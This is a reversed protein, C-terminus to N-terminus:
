FGVKQVIKTMLQIYIQVKKQLFVQVVKAVEFQLTILIRTIQVSRPAVLVTKMQFKQIKMM